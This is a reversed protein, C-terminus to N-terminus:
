IGRPRDISHVLSMSVIDYNSTKGNYNGQVVVITDQEPLVELVFTYHTGNTGIDVIDYQRVDYPKNIRDVYKIHQGYAADQLMATYGYYANM